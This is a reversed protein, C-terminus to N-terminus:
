IGAYGASVPWAIPHGRGPRLTFAGRINNNNNNNTNNNNNNTTTTTTKKTTTTTATVSRDCHPRKTVLRDCYPLPLM